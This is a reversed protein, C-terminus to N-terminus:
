SFPCKGETPEAAVPYKNLVEPDPIEVRKKIKLKIGNLSRLTLRSVPDPVHGDAVEFQYHKTLTSIILLAEQLAFAAGICIRPGQSFPLYAGSNNKNEGQKFRDPNFANPDSWVDKHRHIIWPAVTVGSGAPVKKGCLESDGKAVRGFFAVPPYLRLTEKFVDRTRKLKHVESFLVSDLDKYNHNAEVALADAQEPQNALIYFTWSLASASTEHGALFLMVIQDILEVENFKTNTVEDTQGMLVELIDGYQTDGDKKQYEKYRASIVKGLLDRIQKGRKKWLYHNLPSFWSPIKFVAFMNVRNAKEQFEEFKHFIDLAEKDKIPLSLITRMIIDATIHTMEVDFAIETGDPIADFRNKMDKVAEIMLPFVKKLGANAFAPNLMRRQREWVEGNTTFISEGLLPKLVDHQIKHKPYNPFDDTLLKRVDDPVKPTFAQYGPLKLTSIKNKYSGEYLAHLFSKRGRLYLRIWSRKKTQILPAPFPPTYLEKTKEESM